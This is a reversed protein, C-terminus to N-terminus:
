SITRSRQRAPRGVRRWRSASRLTACCAREANRGLDIGAAARLAAGTHIGAAAKLANGAHMGAAAKAQTSLRM